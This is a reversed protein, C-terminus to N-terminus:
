KWGTGASVLCRSPLDAHGPRDRGREGEVTEFAFGLLPELRQPGALRRALEPRYAPAATKARSPWLTSLLKM